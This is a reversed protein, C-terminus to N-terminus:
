TRIAELVREHPRETNHIINFAALLTDNKDVMKKGRQRGKKGQEHNTEQQMRHRINKIQFNTYIKAQQSRDHINRFFM